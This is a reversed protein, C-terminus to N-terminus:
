LTRHDTTFPAAHVALTLSGGGEERSVVAQMMLWPSIRPYKIDTGDQRALLFRRSPLRKLAARLAALLKSAALSKCFKSSTEVYQVSDM